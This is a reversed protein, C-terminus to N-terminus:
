TTRRTRVHQSERNKIARSFNAYRHSDERCMIGCIHSQYGSAANEIGAPPAQPPVVIQIVIIWLTNFTISNHMSVSRDYLLPFKRTHFFIAVKKAVASSNAAQSSFSLRAAVTLRIMQRMTLAIRGSVRSRRRCSSILADESCRRRYYIEMRWADKSIKRHKHATGTIACCILMGASIISSAAHGRTIGRNAFATM